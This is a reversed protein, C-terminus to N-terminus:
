DLYGTHQPDLTLYTEYAILRILANTCAILILYISSFKILQFGSVADPWFYKVFYYRVVFYCLASVGFM